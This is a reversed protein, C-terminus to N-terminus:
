PKKFTNKLLKGNKYIKWGDNYIFGTDVDLGLSLWAKNGMIPTGFFKTQLKLPEWEKVKIIIEQDIWYIKDPKKM